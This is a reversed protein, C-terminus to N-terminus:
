EEDEDEDTEQDALVPVVKKVTQPVKLGWSMKMDVSTNFERGEIIMDFLPQVDSRYTAFGQTTKLARAISKLYYSAVAKNCDSFAEDEIEPLSAVEDLFPKNDMNVAVLHCLSLVALADEPSTLWSPLTRYEIGYDQQRVCNEGKLTGYSTGVRRAIAEDKDEVMLLLPSVIRTLASQLHPKRDTARGVDECFMGHGLHVHGGIPEDDAMSGAKWRYMALNPNNDLGSQLLERINKVHGRPTDSYMPRLEAVRGCGDIGFNDSSGNITFVEDPRVLDGKETLIGWEPDSGITVKLM